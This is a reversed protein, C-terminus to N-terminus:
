RRAAAVIRQVLGRDKVAVERHGVMVRVEGSSPDRVYATVPTDPLADSAAAAILSPGAAASGIAAAGTIAGAASLFRRRSVTAM